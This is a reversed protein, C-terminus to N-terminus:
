YCDQYCDDGMQRYWEDEDQDPWGHFAGRALIVPATKEVQEATFFFGGACHHKSKQGKVVHFNLSKWAEYTGFLDYGKDILKLVKAHSNCRRTRSGKVAYVRVDDTFMDANIRTQAVDFPQDPYPESM